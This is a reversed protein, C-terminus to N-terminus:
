RGLELARTAAVRRGAGVAGLDLFFARLGGGSSTVHIARVDPHVHHEFRLLEKLRALPAEPPAPLMVPPEPKQSAAASVLEHVKKAPGLHSPFCRSCGMKLFRM